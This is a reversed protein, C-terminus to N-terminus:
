IHSMELGGSPKRIGVGLGDGELAVIRVKLGM